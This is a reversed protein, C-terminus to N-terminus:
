GSEPLRGRMAERLVRKTFGGGLVSAGPLSFCYCVVRWDMFPSRVEVGHAMSYRDFDRLIGPITRQHFDAFLFETM